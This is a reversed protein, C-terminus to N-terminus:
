DIRGLISLAMATGYVRGYLAHDVFSGDAERSSLVAGRVAAHVRARREADALGAADVANRHAYYFFYAGHGSEDFDSSYHKTPGRLAAHHEVFSDLAGALQQETNRGHLRLAHECLAERAVGGVATTMWAFGPLPAYSFRGDARRMGALADLGRELVGADIAVGAARARSLAITNQATNFTTPRQPGYVSWSGDRQQLGEIRAAFRAAAELDGAALLFDVAYPDNFADVRRAPEHSRRDLFQRIRALAADIRERRAGATRGRWRLLADGALATYAVAWHTRLEGGQPRALHDVFGGHEQQMELLIDISQLPDFDDTRSAESSTPSSEARWARLSLAQPLSPGGALLCAAARRGHRTPAAARRWVARADAHRGARHLALGLLWAAEGDTEHGPTLLEIAASWDASQLLRDAEALRPARPARGLAGAFWSEVHRASIAGIRHLEDTVEGDRVVLLAPTVVDAARRGFARLPDGDADAPSCGGNFLLNESVEEGDRVVVLRCDDFWATGSGTATPMVLVNVLQADPTFAYDVETWEADGSVRATGGRVQEGGRATWYVRVEATSDETRVRGTFRFADGARHDPQVISQLFGTPGAARLSGPAAAGVEADFVPGAGDCSWAADLRGKGHSHFDYTVLLPVFDAEITAAVCEDALAGARFLLDKAYGPDELAVSPAAVSERAARFAGHAHTCRVYVLLPRAQRRARERAAAVDLVWDTEVACERALHEIGNGAAGRALPRVPGGIMQEASAAAEHDPFREVLERWVADALDRRGSMAHNVGKQLLVRPVEGDGPNERLWRDITAIAEAHRGLRQQACFLFYSAVRRQAASCHEHALVAELQREAAAMDGDVQFTRRAGALLDAVPDQPVRSASRDDVHWTGAALRTAEHAAVFALQARAAVHVELTGRLLTLKWGGETRDIEFAAPGRAEVRACADIDVTARTGEPVAVHNTAELPAVTAETATAFEGSTRLITGHSGDQIIWLVMAACAGMAALAVAVPRHWAGRRVPPRSRLRGTLVREAEFEDRCAPCRALHATIGAAERSTTGDEFLTYLLSRVRECTWPDNM